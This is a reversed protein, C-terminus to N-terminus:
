THVEDYKIKGGSRGEHIKSNKRNREGRRTRPRRVLAEFPYTWGPGPIFWGDFRKGLRM